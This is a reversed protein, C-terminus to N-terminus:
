GFGTTKVHRGDTTHADSSQPFMAHLCLNKDADTAHMVAELWQQVLEIDQQNVIYHVMRSSRPVFIM